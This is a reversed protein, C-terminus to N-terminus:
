IGACAKCTWSEVTDDKFAPNTCYAVGSLSVFRQAKDLSFSSDYSRLRITSDLDIALTVCVAIAAVVISTLMLVDINDAGRQSKCHFEAINM